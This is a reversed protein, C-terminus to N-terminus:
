ANNNDNNWEKLWDNYILEDDSCTVIDKRTVLASLKTKKEELVIKLLHGKRRIELPQGTVIVKDIESFIKQRLESVSISM